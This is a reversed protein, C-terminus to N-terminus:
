ESKSEGINNLFAGQASIGSDRSLFNLLRGFMDALSNLNKQSADPLLDPHAKLLELMLNLTILEPKTLHDLNSM